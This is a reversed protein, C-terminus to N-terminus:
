ENAVKRNILKFAVAVFFMIMVFLGVGITAGYGFNYNKFTTNYLYMVMTLVSSQPAGEGGSLVFPVDFMTMGGIVSTIVQYLIIPRLMPLTIHWFVQRRNAGDVRAAEFLEDPISKLGAMFIIMSYGFWMWWLTFAVAGRTAVIDQLWNIPESIIHLSMLIRNLTGSQWDLIFYFLAGVSAMTVLNPLYYVGRFLGKGRLKRESLLVALGLGFVMQPIVNALWIIWTNAISKFFTTDHVLRKYNDLGTYKAPIISGDWKTFSLNLSYIIPIVVFIILVIFFPAIFAYGHYGYKDGKSLKKLLNTGEKM